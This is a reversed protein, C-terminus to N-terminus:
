DLRIGWGGWKSRSAVLRGESLVGLTFDVTFGLFLLAALTGSCGGEGGLGRARTRALDAEAWDALHLAVDGCDLVREPSGAEGDFSGSLDVLDGEGWPLM